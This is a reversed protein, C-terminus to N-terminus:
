HHGEFREGATVKLKLRNQDPPLPCTAYKTFSCPPNYSKNFDLEVKNDKRSAYLFRGAGYTEEGNTEDAYVIFLEDKGQPELIYEKGDKKFVIKGYCTDKEIQGLINPIEIIKVPNYAIWEAEFKWDSNVPFRPIGTFNKLIENESDKLRIGIKDDRKIIYWLLSKYTMLTAKETDDKLNTQQLETGDVLIKVGPSIVLKVSDGELIFKGMQPEGNPFIIKNSKETGFTNEGQELWFLGALSLWSDSKKLNEVRKQHWQNVTSIYEKSGKEIYNESCATVLFIFILTSTIRIKM